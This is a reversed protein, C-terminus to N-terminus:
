PNLLLKQNAWTFADQGKKRVVGNQVLLITPYGEIPLADHLALSSDILVGTGFQAAMAENDGDRREKGVIIKVGCDSSEAKEKWLKFAPSMSHCAPCWPAVYVLLCSKKGECQNTSALASLAPSAKPPTRLKQRLLVFGSMVLAIFIWKKMRENFPEDAKADITLQATLAHSRLLM